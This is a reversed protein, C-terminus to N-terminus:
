GDDAALLNLIKVQVGHLDGISCYILVTSFVNWTRQPKKQRRSSGLRIWARAPYKTLQRLDGAPRINEDGGNSHRGRDGPADVTQCHDGFREHLVEAILRVVNPMILMHAVRTTATSETPNPVTIVRNPMFRVCRTSISVSAAAVARKVTTLPM